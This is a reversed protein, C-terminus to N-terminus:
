RKDLHNPERFAGTRCNTKQLLSLRIKDQQVEVQFFTAPHIYKPVDVFATCLDPGDDHRAFWGAFQLGGTQREPSM